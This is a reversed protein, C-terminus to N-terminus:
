LHSFFSRIIAISESPQEQPILHGAGNFLKYEGQAFLQTAKKLDIFGRNESDEGEIVLTPCAVKSLLPWPNYHVSGMFLSAERKPSCALQLGGADLSKMGYTIYLDLMEEDWNKFLVKSRLYTLAENRDSWSDRRRIAKSALPHDDVTIQLKYFDEPLFIPEFLILGRTDLGFAGNALTIVTAGMSHGVMFPRDLRLVKCLNALDEAIVLWSLGGKEPDSERHDCFYPAIIRWDSSLERAIPHWLWPLFGTAHLLVITPGDGEYLLYSLEADGIDQKMISPM